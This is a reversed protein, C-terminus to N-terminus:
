RLLIAWGATGAPRHVPWYRLPGSVALRKGGTAAAPKAGIGPAFDPDDPFVDKELPVSTCATVTLLPLLLLLAKM